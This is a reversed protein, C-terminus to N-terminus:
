AVALKVESGKYYGQKILNNTYKDGGWNTDMPNPSIGKGENTLKDLEDKRAQREGAITTIGTTIDQAVKGWNVYQKELDRQAYLSYKKPDVAM